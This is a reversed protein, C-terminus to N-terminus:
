LVLRNYKKYISFSFKFKLDDFNTKGGV